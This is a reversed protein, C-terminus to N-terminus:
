LRKPQAGHPRASAEAAKQVIDRAYLTQGIEYGM